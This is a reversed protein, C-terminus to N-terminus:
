GGPKLWLGAVVGVFIVAGLWRSHRFAGLCAAPERQRTLWFDWGVLALALGLGAFYAAGLEARHGVLLLAWFFGVHLIAQAVRDADGLLVATSKTGIRIDDARTAMARWTNYGSAWLVNALFLLWALPPPFVDQVAAFAMPIACSVVLGRYVQVLYTHRQVLPTGAALLLGALGLYLTIRNTLLVFGLAVAALVVLAVWAQKGFDGTKVPPEHEFKFAISGRTRGVIVAVAHVAVAGLTFILLLHWPPFGDAALWLAWWVPWLILLVDGPQHRAILGWYRALSPWGDRRSRATRPKSAAQQQRRRPPQSTPM